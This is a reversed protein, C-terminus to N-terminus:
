LLSNMFIGAEFKRFNKINLKRSRYLKSALLVIWQRPHNMTSNHLPYHLLLQNCPWFQIGLFHNRMMMMQAQQVIRVVSGGTVSLNSQLGALWLNWDKWSTASLWFPYALCLTKPRQDLDTAGNLCHYRISKIFSWFGLFLIVAIKSM